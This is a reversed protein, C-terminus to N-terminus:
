DFCRTLVVAFDWLMIDFCRVALQTARGPWFTWVAVGSLLALLPRRLREQSLQRRLGHHWRSWSVRISAQHKAVTAGLFSTGNYVSMFAQRALNFEARLLRATSIGGQAGSGLSSGIRVVAGCVQVLFRWASAAAGVPASAASCLFALPSALAAVLAGLVSCFFHLADRARRLITSYPLFWGLLVSLRVVVLEELRQSLPGLSQKLLSRVLPIRKYLDYFGLLMSLCSIFVVVVAVFHRMFRHNCGIYRPLVIAWAPIGAECLRLLRTHEPDHIVERLVYPLFPDDFRFNVTRNYLVEMVSSDSDVQHSACSGTGGDGDHVQSTPSTDGGSFDLSRRPSTPGGVVREAARVVANIRAFSAEEARPQWYSPGVKSPSTHLKCNETLLVVQPLEVGVEGKVPRYLAAPSAGLDWGFHLGCSRLDPFWRRTLCRAEIVVRSADVLLPNWYDLGAIDGLLIEFTCVGRCPRADGPAFFPSDKLAWRSRRLTVAPQQKLEDQVVVLVLKKPKGAGAGISAIGDVWLFLVSHNTSAYRGVWLATLPAFAPLAEARHPSSSLEDEDM